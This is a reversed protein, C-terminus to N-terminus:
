RMKRIVLWYWLNIAIPIATVLIVLIVFPTTIPHPQKYLHYFVLTDTISVIFTDIIILRAVLSM